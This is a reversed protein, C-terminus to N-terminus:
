WDTGTLWMGLSTVLISCFLGGVCCRWRGVRPRRDVWCLNPAGGPPGNGSVCSVGPGTVGTLPELGAEVGM